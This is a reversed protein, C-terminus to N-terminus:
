LKRTSYPNMLMATCLCNKRNTRMLIDYNPCSQCQNWFADDTPLESFTVPRYELDSNITMVALSSTISFLQASPFKRRSLGVAAEKMWRALGCKRFRENVILGSTATYRGHSWSGICCFGAVTVEQHESALAIIALGETIKHRIYDPPRHAIGTGRALAAERIMASIVEAYRSHDARAIQVSVNM